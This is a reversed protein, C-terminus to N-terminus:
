EKIRWRAGFSWFFNLKLVGNIFLHMLCKAPLSSALKRLHWCLLLFPCKCFHFCSLTGFKFISKKRSYTCLMVNDRQTRVPHFQLVNSRKKRKMKQRNKKDWKVLLVEDVCLGTRSESLTGEREGRGFHKGHARKGVCAVGAPELRFCLFSSFSDM